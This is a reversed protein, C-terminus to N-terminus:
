RSADSLAQDFESRTLTDEANRESPLPLNYVTRIDGLNNADEINKVCDDVWGNFDQLCSEKIKSQIVKFQRRTSNRKTM